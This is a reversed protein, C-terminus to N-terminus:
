PWDLEVIEVPASGTNRLVHTADASRWWWAGAGSEKSAGEPASGEWQLTGDNVQVTLGPRVHRHEPTAQGAKLKVRYIHAGMIERELHMGSGEPLVADSAGSRRLIQGVIYHFPKDGVNGVRHTYPLSENANDFIDGVHDTDEPASKAKGLRQEWTRTTAIIVGVHRDAHLHYDTTDGAPVRVDMVRVWENEFVLHHRAEKFAPVAHM